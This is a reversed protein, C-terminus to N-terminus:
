SFTTNGPPSSLSLHIIAILRQELIQNLLHQDTSGCALAAQCDELSKRYQAKNNYIIARYFYLTTKLDLNNSPSHTLATSFDILASELYFYSLFINGRHLLIHSQLDDHNSPQNELAESFRMFAEYPASLALENQGQHYLIRAKLHPITPNCLLAQAYDKKAKLWEKQRQYNFGRNVLITAAFDSHIECALAQTFDDEANKFTRTTVYVAARGVLIKARFEDKLDRHLNLSNTFDKVAENFDRLVM